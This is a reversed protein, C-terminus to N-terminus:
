NNSSRFHVVTDAMHGHPIGKRMRLTTQDNCNMGKKANTGCACSFIFFLKTISYELFGRNSCRSTNYWLIFFLAVTILM